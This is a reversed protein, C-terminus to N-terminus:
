LKLGPVAQRYCQGLCRGLHPLCEVALTEDWGKLSRAELYRYQTINSRGELTSLEHRRSSSDAFHLKRCRVGMMSGIRGM